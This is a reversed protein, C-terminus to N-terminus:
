SSCCCRSRTSGRATTSRASWSFCSTYRPWALLRLAHGEAEGAVVVTVADVAELRAVIVHAEKVLDLQVEAPRANVDPGIPPFPTITARPRLPSGGPAPPAILSRSRKGHALIHAHRCDGTPMATKYERRTPARSTVAGRRARISRRPGLLFASVTPLAALDKGKPIRTVCVTLM